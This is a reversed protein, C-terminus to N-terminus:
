YRGKETQSIEGLNVDKNDMWTTVLPLYENKKITEKYNFLIGCYICLLTYIILEGPCKPKKRHKAIKFLVAIFM